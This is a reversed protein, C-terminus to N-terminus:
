LFFIIILIIIILILTLYKNKVLFDFINKLSTSLYKFFLAPNQIDNIMEKFLESDTKERKKILEFNNIEGCVADLKIKKNKDVRIKWFPIWIEDFGSLSINDTEVDYKASLIKKTTIEAEKLDVVRKKIKVKTKKVREINVKETYEPNAYNFLAIYENELRNRLANLACQGSLDEYKGNKKFYIDYFSFWYPVINLYMDEKKLKINYGKKKYDEEILEIAKNRNIKIPFANKNLEM